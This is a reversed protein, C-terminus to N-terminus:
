NPKALENWITYDRRFDQLSAWVEAFERDNQVHKRAATKWAEGFKALIDEPWRRMQIGELTLQKLAEFQQAEAATLASTVNQACLGAIADQQTPPLKEWTETNVALVFSTLPQHWGPFYFNRAFQQFGLPRDISPISYELGQIQDSELQSLIDEPTGPVPKAGLEAYVQAGLGEARITLESLDELQRVPSRFWGGGEAPLQGCLTVNLGRKLMVKDLLEKGGGHHFWALYETSNPGFPIATFLQLANSSADLEQPTAFIADVAGSTLANLVEGEGHVSHSDILSLGLKGNTVTPLAHQLHLVLDGLVPTQPPYPSMVQLRNEELVPPTPAPSAAPAPGSITDPGDINLQEAGDVNPAESQNRAKELSPAVYTTAAMIGFVIGIIIGIITNRM